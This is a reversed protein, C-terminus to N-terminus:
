SLQALLEEMDRPLPERRVADFARRLHATVPDAPSPITVRM